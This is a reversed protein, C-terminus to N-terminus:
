AEPAAEAAQGNEQRAWEPMCAEDGFHYGYNYTLETMAPIDCNAFFAVRLHLV